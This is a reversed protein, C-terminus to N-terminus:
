ECLDMRGEIILIPPADTELAVIGRESWEITKGPHDAVVNIMDIILNGIVMDYEDNGTM